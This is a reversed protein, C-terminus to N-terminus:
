LRAHAERLAPIVSEPVHVCAIESRGTKPGHFDSGGTAILKHTKCLALYREMLSPPHAPYYVEVGMLGDSALERIIQDNTCYVPHALVPVGGAERILAIAEQVTPTDNPVYAPGDKKLWRDFAEQRDKIYDKEMLADALHPRGVAGGKALELVRQFSIALGLQNLKGCMKQVREARIERFVVLRKQLKRSKYDIFYGLIHSTNRGEANIEIAPILELGPAHPLLPLIAEMGATSDHDSVALYHIGASVALKLLEAPELTGDSATTHTHLDVTNPM